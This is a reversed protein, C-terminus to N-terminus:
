LTSFICCSHGNRQAIWQSVQFPGVTYTGLSKDFSPPLVEPPTDPSYHARLTFPQVRNFSIM